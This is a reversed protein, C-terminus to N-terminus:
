GSVTQVSSQRTAALPCSASVAGRHGGYMLWVHVMLSIRLYAQRRYTGIGILTLGAVALFITGPEAVASGELSFAANFTPAPNGGVIDTGIRLWDPNLNSDRGPKCTPASYRQEPEALQGRHPYGIFSGGGNAVSVQPIFFYHDSPLDFPTALNVNFQVEQGSILGNGGTLQGPSPHIGGLRVSNLASFSASLLSTTFSLEGAASDKVQFAVDSPSNSRTPM